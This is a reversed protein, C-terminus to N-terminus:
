KLRQGARVIARLVRRGIYEWDPFPGVAICDILSHQGGTEVAYIVISDGAVPSDDFVVVFSDAVSV